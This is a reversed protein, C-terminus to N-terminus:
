EVLLPREAVQLNQMDGNGKESAKSSAYRGKASYRTDM